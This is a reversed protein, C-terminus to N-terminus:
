FLLQAQLTVQNAKQDEWVKADNVTKQVQSTLNAYELKLNANHGKIFMNVGGRINMIDNGDVDANYWEGGVIPMLPVKLVEFRFGLEGFAGMGTSGDQAFASQYEKALTGLKPSFYEESKQNYGRDFYVFGVQGTIGMTEDLPYDAFVDGTFAKYLAANGKSDFTAGPQVDFGGGISLVKKAGLYTGCYFFADEVDFFNVAVRGTFRPMDDENRNARAVPETALDKDYETSYNDATIYKSSDARLGNFVGIRYDLMDFLIGRAEVGVDRWVKDTIFKGSFINHYDQGALSIAGQRNHHSFPLLIMGGAVKLEKYMAFEVYADQTFMFDGFSGNKGFNANETEYFFNIWKNVKGALMVRARRLFFENDWGDKTINADETFQAQGQLLM